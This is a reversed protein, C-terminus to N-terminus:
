AFHCPDLNLVEFAADARCPYTDLSFSVFDSTDRKRFQNTLQNLVVKVQTQLPLSLTGRRSWQEHSLTPAHSAACDVTDDVLHCSSGLERWGLLGLDCRVAKTM